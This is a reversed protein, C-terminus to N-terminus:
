HTQFLHAYIYLTSFTHSHIDLFLTAPPSAAPTIAPADPAASKQVPEALNQAHVAPLSTSVPASAAPLVHAGPAAAKQVSVPPTPAEVGQVPAVVTEKVPASSTPVAPEASAHTTAASTSVTPTQFQVGQPRSSQAARPMFTEMFIQM